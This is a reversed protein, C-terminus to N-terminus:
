PKQLNHEPPIGLNFIMHNHRRTAFFVAIPQGDEALVQPRDKELPPSSDQSRNM